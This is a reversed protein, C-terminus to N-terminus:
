LYPFALSTKSSHDSWSSRAASSPSPPPSACRRWPSSSRMSATRSRRQLNGSATTLKRRPSLCRQPQPQPPPPAPPPTSSNGARLNRACQPSAGRPPRARPLRSREISAPVVRFQLTRGDADM